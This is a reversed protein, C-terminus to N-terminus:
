KVCNMANACCKELGYQARNYLDRIVKDFDNIELGYEKKLRRAFFEKSDATTELWKKATNRATLFVRYSTVQPLYQKIEEIKYLESETQSIFATIEDNCTCYLSYFFRYADDDKKLFAANIAQIINKYEKNAGIKVSIENGYKDLATGSHNLEHSISDTADKVFEKENDYVGKPIYLSIVATKEEPNYDRFGASLALSGALVAMVTVTKVGSGETEINFTHPTEKGPPMTPIYPWLKEAIEKAVPHQWCYSHLREELCDETLAISEKLPILNHPPDFPIYM